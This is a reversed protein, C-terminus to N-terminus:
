IVFTKPNLLGGGGINPFIGLYNRIKKRIGERFKGTGSGCRRERRPFNPGMVTTDTDAASVHARHFMPVLITLMENPWLLLMEKVAALCAERLEQSLISYASSTTMLM